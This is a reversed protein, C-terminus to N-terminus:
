KTENKILERLFNQYDNSVESQNAVKLNSLVYDKFYDKKAVLPRLTRDQKKSKVYKDWMSKYKKTSLIFDVYDKKSVFKVKLNSPLDKPNSFSNKYYLPLDKYNLNLNLEKRRKALYNKRAYFRLDEDKIKWFPDSRQWMQDDTKKKM